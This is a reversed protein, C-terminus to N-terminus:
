EKKKINNKIFDWFIEDKAGYETFTLFAGFQSLNLEYIKRHPEERVHSIVLLAKSGLVDVMEEGEKEVLRGYTKRDKKATNQSMLNNDIVKSVESLHITTENTKLPLDSSMPDGTTLFVSKRVKKDFYFALWGDPRKVTLQGITFQDGFKVKTWIYVIYRIPLIDFRLECLIFAAGIVVGIIVAKKTPRIGFM